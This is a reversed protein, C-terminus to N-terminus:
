GIRRRLGLAEILLSHGIPGCDPARRDVRERPPGLAPRNRSRAPRRLPLEVRLGAVLLSPMLLLPTAPLACSQTQPEEQRQDGGAAPRRRRGATPEPGPPRWSLVQGPRRRSTRLRSASVRGRALAHKEKRTLWAKRVSLGITTTTVGVKTLRGRESSRDQSFLDEFRQVRSPIDTSNM